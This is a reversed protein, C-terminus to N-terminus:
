EERETEDAENEDFTLYRFIDIGQKGVSKISNMSSEIIELKKVKENYSKLITNKVKKVDATDNETITDPEKEDFHPSNIEITIGNDLCRTM